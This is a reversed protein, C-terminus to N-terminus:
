KQHEQHSFLPIHTYVQAQILNQLNHANQYFCSQVLKITHICRHKLAIAGLYPKIRDKQFEFIQVDLSECRNVNLWVPCM